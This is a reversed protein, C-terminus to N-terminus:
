SELAAKFGFNAFADASFDHSSRTRPALESGAELGEVARGRRRLISAIWVVVARDLLAEVLSAVWTMAM